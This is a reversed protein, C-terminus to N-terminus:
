CASTDTNETRQGFAAWAFLFATVSLAWYLPLAILAVGFACGAGSHGVCIRDITVATLLVTGIYGTFPLGLVLLVKSRRGGDKKFPFKRYVFWGALWALLVPLGYFAIAFFIASYHTM